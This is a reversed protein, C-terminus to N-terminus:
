QALAKGAINLATGDVTEAHIRTLALRLRAVEDKLNDRECMRLDDEAHAIMRNSM